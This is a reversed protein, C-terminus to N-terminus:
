HIQSNNTLRKTIDVGMLPLSAQGCWDKRDVVDNTYVTKVLFVGMMQNANHFLYPHLSLFSKGIIVFEPLDNDRRFSDALLLFLLSLLHFLPSPM